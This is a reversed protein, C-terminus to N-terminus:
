FSQLCILLSPLVLQSYTKQSPQEPSVLSKLLTYSKAGIVSFFVAVRTGEQVDNAELFQEFREIYSSFDGAEICGFNM